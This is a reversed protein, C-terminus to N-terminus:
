IQGAIDLLALNTVCPSESRTTPLVSVIWFFPTTPLSPINQALIVSALFSSVRNFLNSFAMSISLFPTLVGPYFLSVRIPCHNNATPEDIQGPDRALRFYDRCVRNWRCYEKRHTYSLKNFVQLLGAKKMLKEFDVPLEVTRVEEDKWVVV